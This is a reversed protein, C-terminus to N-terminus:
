SIAWATVAGYNNLIDVEYRKNAEVTFGDPMVVSAPLTVAPATAGSIFDFHYQALEGDAPATLTVTLATLDGTFHYIVYAAIEKTVSGNDAVTEETWIPVEGVIQEGSSSKARVGKFVNRSSATDGTVDMLTAGNLTVKSIAM